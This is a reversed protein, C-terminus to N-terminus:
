RVPFPPRPARDIPWPLRWTWNHDGITGPTNIRDRWGFLDQVPVFLETSAATWLLALLADRVRDSWPEAPDLGRAQLAPLAGLAAREAEASRDWWEAMTETDHTGSMAVSRPPYDVPDIFPHGDDHWRREWRLVRSGPVDQRALSARVFDPVTGLDEVMLMAGTAKFIGLVAEGQATQDPEDAPSFFPQGSVPRGYTRYFGVLHDIRLGDYLAAMRRARQRILDYGRAAITEWRYAPLGWDQGTDSFADPPVGVSVDLRFEDARAWVDASHGGVVFPLDGYVLVGHAAADRRARQWQTEALWQVYQERLIPEALRARAEVLAGPDRDRLPPPWGRWSAHSQETSLAQFLAHDALWWREREVYSALEVARPTHADWERARFRAFALDLAAHKVHRADGYRVAPADRARALADRADPPLAAVGGAREFDEVGGLGVYLPDIAMASAAAYPSTEGEAMTGIPLLMLRDFGASSLWRALPAVDPLEGIGWSRSSAASFLPLMVGAHRATM